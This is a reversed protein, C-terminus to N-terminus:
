RGYHIAAEPRVEGNRTSPPFTPLRREGFAVEATEQRKRRECSEDFDHPNSTREEMLFEIVRVPDNLMLRRVGLRSISTRRTPTM